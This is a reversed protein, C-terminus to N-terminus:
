GSVIPVLAEIRDPFIRLKHAGGVALCLAGNSYEVWADGLNKSHFGNPVGNFFVRQGPSAVLACVSVASTTDICRGILGSMAVGADIAASGISDVRVGWWGQGKSDVASTRDCSLVAGAGAVAYGMDHLHLEFPNLYVGDSDAIADGNFLVAAPNALFHTAGPREGRAVALANYAVADGQGENVVVTRYVCHATRGDASATSENHGSKNVAYVYHGCTEPTYRYGSVPLGLTAKGSVSLSLARVRSMDGSFATEINEESGQPSPASSFERYEIM